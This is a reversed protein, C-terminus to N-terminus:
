TFLFTLTETTLSSVPRGSPRHSPALPRSNDTAGEGLDGGGPARAGAAARTGPGTEERTDKGTGAKRRAEARIQQYLARTEADPETNLDRHLHLRLERYVHTSASYNGSAALVHMLARQA